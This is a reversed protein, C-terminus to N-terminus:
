QDASAAERADLMDSLVTLETTQSSVIAQALRRVDEDGVLDLAAQAMAVGGEHHAVMLRLYLIEADVGGAHALNGLDEDSAMGPMAADSDPTATAEAGHDMSGMSSDTARMWQMRASRSAQPLDWQELWGYMQGAQQQQTLMIDLALSRVEPDDTADRVMTSMEVAQVHHAQMDRAFGAEASDEGPRSVPDGGDTLASGAVM